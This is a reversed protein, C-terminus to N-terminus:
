VHSGPKPDSWPSAHLGHRVALRMMEHWAPHFEVEDRRNGFRDFAHLEPPHRNAAFGLEITEARGLEAGLADLDQEAWAAGERRVADRLARDGAFLNYNALPPPQNLAESATAPSPDAPM